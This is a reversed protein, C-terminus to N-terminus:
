YLESDLDLDAVAELLPEPMSYDNVLSNIFKKLRLLEAKYQKLKENEADKVSQSYSQNLLEQYNNPKNDGNTKDKINEDKTLQDVANGGHPTTIQIGPEEEEEGVETQVEKDEM